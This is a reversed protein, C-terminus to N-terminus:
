RLSAILAAAAKADQYIADYDENELRESSAIWSGGCAIVNPLSLYEAANHISIGGTPMFRVQRYPGYLAKLMPIGGVVSAPFMKLIELGKSLAFEVESPTACGPFVPQRHTLCWDVVDPNTGPSIIAKAGADAAAEAQQVSLVTGACVFMEPCHKAIAAIAEAACSTRFTIEASYLGGKMLAEAMPVAQKSDDIKIVPIIGSKNLISEISM